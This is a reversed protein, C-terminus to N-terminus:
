HDASRDDRRRFIGARPRCLFKFTPAGSSSSDASKHRTGPAQRAVGGVNMGLLVAAVVIVALLVLALLRIVAQAGRVPTADAASGKSQTNVTPISLAAEASEGEEQQEIVVRSRAYSSVVLENQEKGNEVLERVNAAFRYGSGPVTTIYRQEHAKEGLAKRLMSVNQSLNVEEVFSDPWLTKMLDDKLVLHGSNQVLLLLTDFVRPPLPVPLGNRLLLREQPDLRFSEFAYLHKGPRSM